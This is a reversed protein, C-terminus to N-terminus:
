VDHINGAISVFPAIVHSCRRAYAGTQCNADSDLFYIFSSEGFNKQRDWTIAPPFRNIHAIWIDYGCSLSDGRNYIWPHAERSVSVKVGPANTKTMKCLYAAVTYDTWVQPENLTYYYGHNPYEPDTNMSNNTYWDRVAKM